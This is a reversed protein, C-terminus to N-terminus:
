LADKDEIYYEPFYESYYYAVVYDAWDIADKESYSILWPEVVTTVSRMLGPRKTYKQFEELSVKRFARNSFPPEGIIKVEM